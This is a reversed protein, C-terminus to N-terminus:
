DDDAEDKAKEKPKFYADGRNQLGTKEGLTAIVSDLLDKNDVKFSMTGVIDLEPDEFRLVLYRRKEKIFGGFISGPLPIARVINGTTSTVSRSQPYITIITSYSLGFLEKGEEGFFVFRSNADDFKLKGDVKDSYGFFGGQYKAEFIEPAPKHQGASREIPRPQAFTVATLGVILVFIIPLNKM